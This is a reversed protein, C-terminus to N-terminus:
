MRDFANRYAIKAKAKYIPRYKTTLMEIFDRAVIGKHPIRKSVFSLGGAGPGSVLSGPRTKPKFDPTMTAYRVATGNNIYGFIEDDTSVSVTVSARSIRSKVVFVVSHEWTSVIGELDDDIDKATDAAVWGLEEQLLAEFASQKFKSWKKVVKADNFQFRYHIM